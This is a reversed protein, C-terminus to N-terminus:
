RAAPKAPGPGWSPALLEVRMTIPVRRLSAWDLYGLDETWSVTWEPLRGCPNADNLVATRGLPSQLRRAVVECSADQMVPMASDPVGMFVAYSHLESANVPWQRQGQPPKVVLLTDLRPATPLASTIRVALNATAQRHRVIRASALGTYLMMVIGLFGLVARGAAGQREIRTGALALLGASGTFFPLGYYSSYRYWLGYVLAGMVPFSLLWV